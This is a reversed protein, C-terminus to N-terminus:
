RRNIDFSTPTTIDIYWGEGVDFCSNSSNGDCYGDIDTGGCGGGYSVATISISCNSAPNIRAKAVKIEHDTFILCTINTSSNAALTQWGGTPKICTTSCGVGPDHLEFAWQIDCDLNNVIDITTQGFM